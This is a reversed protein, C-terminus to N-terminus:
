AAFNMTAIQLTDVIIEQNIAQQNSFHQYLHKLLLIEKDASLVIGKTEAWNNISEKIEKLLDWDLYQGGLVSKKEGSMLYMLDFGLAKELTNISDYTMKSIGREYMGYASDSIGLVNAVDLQKLKLRKRESILRINFM